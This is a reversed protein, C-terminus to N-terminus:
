AQDHQAMRTALNEWRMERLNQALRHVEGTEVLHRRELGDKVGHHRLMERLAEHMRKRDPTLVDGRRTHFADEGPECVANFVNFQRCAMPRLPHMACAEDVLFPCAGLERHRLLQQRVRARVEGQLKEVAYWTIGMLELPYVPIDPQSRCCTACGRACALGRGDSKIATAVGQNTIFQIELLLALWPLRKEDEPFRLRAPKSPMSPYRIFTFRPYCPSPAIRAEVSLRTLIWATTTEGLIDAKGVINKGAEV